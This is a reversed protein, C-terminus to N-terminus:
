KMFTSTSLIHLVIEFTLFFSLIGSLPIERLLITRDDQRHGRHSHPALPALRPGSPRAGSRFRLTAVLM